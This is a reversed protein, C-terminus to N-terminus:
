SNLIKLFENAKNEIQKIITQDKSAVKIMWYKNENWKHVRGSANGEQTIFGWFWLDDFVEKDENSFNEDEMIKNITSFNWKKEQPYLKNFIAIIVTDVPLSIKDSKAINKPADDWIYLKKSYEGNHFHCINKVFLASTKDGWGPKSKLGQFLAEYNPEDCNQDLYRVFSNFSNLVEKNEELEKFFNAINNINPQSQTNVIDYLLSLVKEEKTDYPVITNLNYKEQIDKNYSRNERLFELIKNLKSRM